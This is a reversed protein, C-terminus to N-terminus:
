EQKIPKIFFKMVGEVSEENYEYGINTLVDKAYKSSLARLHLAYLKIISGSFTVADPRLEKICKVLISFVSSFMKAQAAYPVQNRVKLLRPDTVMASYMEGFSMDETYGVVPGFVFGYVKKTPDIQKGMGIFVCYVIGDSLIFSMSGMDKNEIEGNNFYPKNTGFDSNLKLAEDLMVWKFPDYFEKLGEHFVEMMICDGHKAKSIVGAYTRVFNEDLLSTFM